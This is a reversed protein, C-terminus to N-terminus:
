PTCAKPTQATHTQKPGVAVLDNKCWEALVSGGETNVGKDNYEVKGPVELSGPGSTYNFGVLANRIATGDTSKARQM